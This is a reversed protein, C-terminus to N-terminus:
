PKCFQPLFYTSLPPTRNRSSALMVYTDLFHWNAKDRWEKALLNGHNKKITTKTYGSVAMWGLM